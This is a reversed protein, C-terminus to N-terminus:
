KALIEWCSLDSPHTKIMQTYLDLTLSLVGRNWQYVKAIDLFLCQFNTLALWFTLDFTSRLLAFSTNPRTTDSHLNCISITTTAESRLTACLHVLQLTYSASTTGCRQYAAFSYVLKQPLDSGPQADSGPRLYNTTDHSETIQLHKGDLFM